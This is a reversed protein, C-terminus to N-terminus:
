IIIFINNTTRVQITMVANTTINLSAAIGRCVEMLNEYCREQIEKLVPNVM